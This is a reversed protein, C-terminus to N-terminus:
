TVKTYNMSKLQHYTKALAFFPWLMDKNEPRLIFNQVGKKIPLDRFISTDKIVEEYKMQKYINPSLWLPAGFPHKSRYAIEPGLQKEIIKRLIHKTTKDDIFRLRSPMAVFFEVVEPAQFPVRVEVSENMYSKDLRLNFMDPLSLTAYSLARLQSYDLDKIIHNYDIDNIGYHPLASYLQEHTMISELKDPSWSEHIPMFRFPKYSFFPHKMSSKFKTNNFKEINNSYMRDIINANLDKPYGMIEDAGESAFMVKYDLNHVHSALMQFSAVGSDYMGDFGNNALKQLVSVTNETNLHIHVHDTKLKNSIFRSASLEDMEGILNQDPKESSQGYLTNIKSKGYNSSFLCLLSSDLGGSLTNVYPVDTPLRMNCSRQFIELFVKIVDDISPENNYFEFWKEPQLWKYRYEKINKNVQAIINYGPYIRHIGEVMTRGPPASFYQLSTLFAEFDIDFSAESDLLLPKVESAFILEDKSVRYFLHREGLIDRSLLLQKNKSDYYAFSWMGEIKQLFNEGELRLGELLVETDLNTRFQVGKHQLEDRLAIYNYIEGNFNLVSNSDKAELPQKITNHPDVIALRTNGLAVIKDKSIYIGQSDPGRHKLMLTMQKVRREADRIARGNLSYIGTIGCM